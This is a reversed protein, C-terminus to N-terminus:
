PLLFVGEDDGEDVVPREVEALLLDKLLTTLLDKVLTRHHLFVRENVREGVVPAVTHLVAESNKLALLCKPTTPLPVLLM